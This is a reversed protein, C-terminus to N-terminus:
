VPQESVARVMPNPLVVRVGRAEGILHKPSGVHHAKSKRRADTVLTVVPDRFSRLGASYGASHGYIPPGTFVFRM